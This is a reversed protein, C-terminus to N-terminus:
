FDRRTYPYIYRGATEVIGEYRWLWCTILHLYIRLRAIAATVDSTRNGSVTRGHTPALHTRLLSSLSHGPPYPIPSPSRTTRPLPYLTYHIPYSPSKYRTRITIERCLHSSGTGPWVASTSRGIPGSSCSKQDLAESRVIGGSGGVARCTRAKVASSRRDSLLSAVSNELDSKDSRTANQTIETQLSIRSRPNQTHTPPGPTM